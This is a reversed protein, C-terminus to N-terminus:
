IFGMISDRISNALQLRIPATEELRSRRTATNIDRIKREEDTDEVRFTVYYGQNGLTLLNPDISINLVTACGILYLIQISIARELENIMANFHNLTDQRAYKGDPDSHLCISRSRFVSYMLKPDVTYSTTITKNGVGPIHREEIHPERSYLGRVDYRAVNTKEVPKLHTFMSLNNLPINPKRGFYNPTTNIDNHEYHDKYSGSASKARYILLDYMNLQLSSGPLPTNKHQIIYADM